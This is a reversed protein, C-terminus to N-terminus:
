SEVRITVEIHKNRYIKSIECLSQARFRATRSRRGRRSSRRHHLGGGSGSCGGGGSRGGGRRRRLGGSGSSSGRGRRRWRQSREECRGGRRRFIGFRFRWGCPGAVLQERQNPALSLPYHNTALVNNKFTMSNRRPADRCGSDKRSKRKQKNRM